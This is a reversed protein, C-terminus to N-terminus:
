KSLAISLLHPLPLSLPLCYWASEGSDAWLGIHPESEGVALDHGSGFDFLQVSLQGFWGPAGRHAM